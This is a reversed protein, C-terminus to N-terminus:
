IALASDATVLGTSSSREGIKGVQRRLKAGLHDTLLVLAATVVIYALVQNYFFLQQAEYLAQGIGGAGILGLVTAMRLNWEFRFLLHTLIAGRALPLTAYLAVVLPSAGTSAIARQPQRPASDLADAFLRGFSGFSHLGLAWAGAVPGVGVVAILVLGWVVEPITRFLELIRRVLLRLLWPSLSASAGIAAILGFAAAVCTGALAIWLTQWVLGPLKALAEPDLAPPFMEAFVGFAHRIAFFQPGYIWLSACGFPLLALLGRPHAKLWMAARDLAALLIVLLIIQTLARQFEFGAISGVLEAGIGGGGVAGVIVASRLACEFAFGGYAILDGRTLPLLGYAALQLPSAGTAVLAELPRRPATELLDAWVKSLAATYYLILAVMGAGPGIGFIIVCFIALTLDPIARFLSLATVLLRASRARIAVAVALPLSLLVALTMAGLTLGLTELLPSVLAALYPLSVDPPFFSRLLAFAGSM